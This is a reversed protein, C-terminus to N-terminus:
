TGSRVRLVEQVGQVLAMLEATASDSSWVLGYTVRLEGADLPVFRIDPRRVTEVLLHPAPLLGQGAAVLDLGAPLNDLDATVV